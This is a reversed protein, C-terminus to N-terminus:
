HVTSNDYFTNKKLNVKGKFFPTYAEFNSEWAVQRRSGVYWPERHVAEGQCGAVSTYYYFWRSHGVKIPILSKLIGYAFLIM